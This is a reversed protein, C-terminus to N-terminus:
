ENQKGKQVLILLAIILSFALLSLLPITIVGFLELSSDTCSVGQTCTHLGQPIVGTYLLCHYLAVAWGAVAIPLAYRICRYDFPFLGITFIFLLPYMFIRQYWCLECPIRHMIESFFLSGLTSAGAILWCMFFLNWHSAKIQPNAMCNPEM